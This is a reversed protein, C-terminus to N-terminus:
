NYSPPHRQWVHEYFECQSARYHAESKGYRHVAHPLLAGAGIAGASTTNSSWDGLVYEMDTTRSWVPWGGAAPATAAGAAAVAAAGSVATAAGTTEEGSGRRNPDGSAAFNTWWTMMQTAFLQAEASFVCPVSPPGWPYVPLGFVLSLEATHPIGYSPGYTLDCPAAWSTNYDYRYVFAQLVCNHWWVIIMYADCNTHHWHHCVAGTAVAVYNVVLVLVYDGCSQTSKHAHGTARSDSEREREDRVKQGAETATAALEDLRCRLSDDKM